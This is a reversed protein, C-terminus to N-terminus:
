MIFSYALGNGDNYLQSVETPTLLRNYVAIDDIVGTFAYSSSTGYNGIYAYPTGGNVINTGSYSSIDLTATQLQNNIYLTMLGDRDLRLVVHYWVDSSASSNAAIYTSSGPLNTYGRIKNSTDAYLYITNTGRLYFIGRATNTDGTIKVWMSISVDNYGFSDILNSVASYGEFRQDSTRSFSIAYGLKGEARYTPSNTPTLTYSNVVDVVNGSAESMRWYAQLNDLLTTGEAEPWEAVVSTGGM